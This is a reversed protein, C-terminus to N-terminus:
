SKQFLHVLNEPTYPQVHGTRRNKLEVIGEQLKQPGVLIQWPLGILDMDALKEGARELRDDYLVDVGMDHLSKYLTASVETCRADEEQLNVIGVYFPAVPEPWIIGKEDHSAEIIAGVLRSIGIGYSGMEPYIPSGDQGMVSVGMSKTYKDGFYFVHGVEIGRSQRLREPPVPCSSPDHKEEAVAYAASLDEDSANAPDDWVADYYLLSEGAPALIQFEHSMNGGIAGSDARVPIPTLGMRRFTRIYANFVEWYTKEAGARNLDFSYGDKMLFERGRMVGFRPRIEDRFKWQIQFLNQPLQKYSKVFRRFIDAIQEENTPGYLLEHEHRDKFRLMEEGYADYRGSAIWLDAPQVTSMLVQNAGIAEQEESVINSIKLLARLGFPLWSYIGAATPAVLGARLMLQHSAISAEAPVEKSTPLFYSSWRM